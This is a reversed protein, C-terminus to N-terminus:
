FGGFGWAAPKQLQKSKRVVLRDTWKRQHDRRARYLIPREPCKKKKNKFFLFKALKNWEEIFLYIFVKFKDGFTWIKELWIFPLFYVVYPHLWFTFNYNGFYKRINRMWKKTVFHSCKESKKKQYINNTKKVNVAIMPICIDYAHM